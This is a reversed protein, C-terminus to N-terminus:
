YKDRSMRLLAADHSAAHIFAHAFPLYVAGM